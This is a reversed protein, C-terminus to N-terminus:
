QMELTINNEGQRAKVSHRYPEYANNEQKLKWLDYNKCM